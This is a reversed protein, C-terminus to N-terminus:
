AYLSGPTTAQEDFRRRWALADASRLTNKMESTRVDLDVHHRRNAMDDRLEDLERRCHLRAIELALFEPATNM